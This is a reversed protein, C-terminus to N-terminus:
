TSGIYLYQNIINNNYPILHHIFTLNLFINKFNIPINKITYINRFSYCGILFILLFILIPYLRFFRKILFSKVSTREFSMPIVYGSIFYFIATGAVSLALLNTKCSYFYHHIILMFSAIGRMLDFIYIKNETASSSNTKLAM